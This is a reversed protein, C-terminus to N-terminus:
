EKRKGSDQMMWNKKQEYDKCCEANPKRNKNASPMKDM